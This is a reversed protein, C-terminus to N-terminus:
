LAALTQLSGVALFGQHSSIHCDTRSDVCPVPFTLTVGEPVTVNSSLKCYRDRSTNLACGCTLLVVFLSVTSASICVPSVLPVSATLPVSSCVVVPSHHYVGATVEANHQLVPHSCNMVRSHKLDWSLSSSSSVCSLLTVELYFHRSLEHQNLGLTLALLDSWPRQM